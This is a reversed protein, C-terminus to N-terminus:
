LVFSRLQILVFQYTSQLGIGSKFYLQNQQLVHKTSQVVLQVALRCPYLGINFKITMWDYIPGASDYNPHCRFTYIDRKYETCFLVVPGFTNYLYHLHKNDM